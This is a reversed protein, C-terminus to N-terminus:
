GYAQLLSAAVSINAHIRWSENEKRREHRLVAGNDSVTPLRTKGLTTGKQRKRYSRPMSQEASEPNREM